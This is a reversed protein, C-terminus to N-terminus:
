GPPGAGHGSAALTGAPTIARAGPGAPPLWVRFCAGGAPRNAGEVTGGCRSVQERVLALGLGTGKPGKTSVFPEFLRDLVEPPLGPGGDEVRLEVGGERAAASASVWRRAADPAAEAAEAANALLNVLAQVLLRRSGRVPPLGPAASWTARVAGLRISALRFAEELAEGAHFPLGPEQAERALGRMDGVIQSIREIGQLAEGLAERAEQPLAAGRSLEDSVYQVNAKVFSLPNNIEHAVGAALRGVVALREAQARRGESEALREVALARERQAGIESIWIRRFAIGGVWALVAIALSLVSWEFVFWADRGEAVLMAVGGGLCAAGALLAALPLDPLLVLLVLPLALLFGFRPGPTGGAFHVVFPSMLGCVVMASFTAVRSLRPRRPTQLAAAALLFTLWAARVVVLAPARPWRLDLPLYVALIAAGVLLSRRWHRIQQDQLQIHGLM